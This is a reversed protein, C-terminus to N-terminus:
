QGDFLDNILDSGSGPDPRPVIRLYALREPGRTVPCYRTNFPGIGAQRLLSKAEQRNLGHGAFQSVYGAADQPSFWYCQGSVAFPCSRYMKDKDVTKPQESAMVLLQKVPMGPAAPVLTAPQIAAILAAIREQIRLLEALVQATEDKM